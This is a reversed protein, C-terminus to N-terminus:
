KRKLGTSVIGKENLIFERINVTTNSTPSIANNGYIADFNPNDNRILLDIKDKLNKVSDVM